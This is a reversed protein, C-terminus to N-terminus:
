SGDVQGVGDAPIIVVEGRKGPHGLGGGALAHRHQDSAVEMDIQGGQDLLEPARSSKSPM